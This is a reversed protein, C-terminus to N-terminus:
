AVLRALRATTEAFPAAEDSGQRLFAEIAAMRAIAQDAVPDAGTQYAGLAILDRKHEYAALLARLRGAAALHAPAAVANMLRSLSLLVDIAPWYGRAALERSLV